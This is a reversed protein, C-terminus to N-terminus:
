STKQQRALLTKLKNINKKIKRAEKFPADREIATEYRLMESNIMSKLTDVNHQPPQLVLM